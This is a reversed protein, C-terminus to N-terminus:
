CALAARPGLTFCRFLQVAGGPWKDVDRAVDSRCHSRAGGRCCKRKGTADNHQCQRACRTALRELVGPALPNPEASTSGASVLGERLLGDHGGGLSAPFFQFFDAVLTDVVYNALVVVPNIVVPSAAPSAAPAETSGAAPEGGVCGQDDGSAELRGSASLVAGSRRLTLTSHPGASRGDFLASDLLGREFLPGLQPHSPWADVNAATFDTLVYVIKDAPFPLARGMRQLARVVYYGLRGSGAGLEIVYLPQTPDLRGASASDALFARV